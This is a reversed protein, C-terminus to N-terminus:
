SRVLPMVRGILEGRSTRTTSATSSVVPSRGARYFLNPALVVFGHTPSGTPWREIQPRLGFADMLLLVGPQREDDPRALYADAVGDPTAVDITESPLTGM